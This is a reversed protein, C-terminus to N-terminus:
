TRYEWPLKFLYDVESFNRIRSHLQLKKNSMAEFMSPSELMYCVATEISVVQQANEFVKCWDFMSFTPIHYLEVVPLGYDNSNNSIQDSHMIHPRTGYSRNVLVYESDDKLNLVNYYLDNEKEKNRNFIVWDRWDTWDEGVANYKGAMVPSTPIFGQFLYFDDEKYSPIGPVYRDKMPFDVHDPLPPGTLKNDYDQWSVWNFDPIYESLWELEHVVPWYVDYGDNKIKHAIKQLFLIDGLGCPQYILANKM